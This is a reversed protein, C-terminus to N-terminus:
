SKKNLREAPIRIEMEGPKPKVLTVLAFMAGYVIAALVALILLVRFTTPM